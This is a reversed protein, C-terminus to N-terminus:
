GLAAVPLLAHLEAVLVHPGPRHQFGRREVAAATLERIAPSDDVLALDMVIADPSASVVSAMAQVANHAPHPVHFGAAQVYSQMLRAVARNAEVIIVTQANSKPVANM